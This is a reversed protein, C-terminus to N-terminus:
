VAMLGANQASYYRPEKAFRQEALDSAFFVTQQARARQQAREVRREALQQEFARRQKTRRAICACILAGVLTLLGVMMIM